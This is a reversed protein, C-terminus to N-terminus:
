AAPQRDFFQFRGQRQYARRAPVIVHVATGGNVPSECSFSAGIGEAREAMGRLGWHGDTRNALFEKPDFGRGNDRCTMRFEGKRYDLEVAVRSAGSHRYANTVAERAICFIEDVVHNQLTDSGGKREFAFEVAAISRLNDAVGEILSNLETDTLNESRLRNVRNRGEVIIHDATTLAKELAPKSDHDAPVKEAAVHFSLLLGQVGQLLTDHLERAIRIREDAREEARMRIAASVYRVRLSMAAWILVVGALVFLAQVWRREYFHPLIRFTASSVPQTWIDNGNSAMVQFRYNGPRLHSYAAETRAGVDQWNSDQSDSAPGELRYRYLVRRPNTLDLGFYKVDLTHTDTPLTANADIENGDAAISRISLLPPHPPAALHDPDVWVVGNLTAFWLRGSPDIHASARFLFPEDPGVFDGERLNVSSIAHTPDAMAARVEAALIRVIGRSGNLWLDGNGAEVVGTVMVAQEPHEFSFQVFKNGHEIEIGSAGYAIIGYSTRAFNLIHGSAISLVKGSSKEIRKVEAIDDTFAAYLRGADDLEMGCAERLSMQPLFRSWRGKAYTWLGHETAGGVSAIFDQESLEVLGLFMYHDTYGSHGPLLPLRHMKGNRVVAIGFSDFVYVGGRDGCFLNTVEPTARFAQVFRGAKSVLIQGDESAIWANGSTDICNWWNGAKSAAIAPVLTSREFRELGSTGGVWINGDGDSLFIHSGTSILGESIGYSDLPNQSASYAQGIESPRLRQLKDESESIWLSGDRAALISDVEYDIRPASLRAGAYDFHQLSCKRAFRSTINPDDGSVWLTHDPSEQINAPGYVHIDTAVFRAQRAGRRYLLNNEIVWQTDQSDIFLKSIHGTSDIPDAVQHWIGDPGLKVLHRENLVAWLTGNTDQQAHGLISLDEGQVRDYTRVEGQHIRSPPGHFPFVWLDGDKAVFMFRISRTPLPPSSAKPHFPVFQLGDFTFLSAVSGIWLIGDPTQALATIAQPAGDRGTWSTHVMQSITQDQACLPLALGLWSMLPVLILCKLIHGSRRQGRM